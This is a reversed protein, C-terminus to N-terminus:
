ARASQSSAMRSAAAPATGTPGSTLWLIGRSPKGCPMSCARLPPGTIFTSTSREAHARGGDRGRNLPDPTQLLSGGHGGRADVSDVDEVLFGSLPGRQDEDVLEGSLRLAPVELHAEESPAIAADGEVGAAIRRRVHGVIGLGVRLVEGGGVDHPEEVGELDVLGVHAPEA